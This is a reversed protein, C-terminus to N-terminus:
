DECIPARQARGGPRGAHSEILERTAAASLPELDLRTLLGDKYLLTMADPEESGTRMTVVLRAGGSQALQHVVLRPCDTWCIRTM